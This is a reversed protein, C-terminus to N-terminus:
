TMEVTLRRGEDAAENSLAYPDGSETGFLRGLATVLSQATFPKKVLTLPEDNLGAEDLLTDTYGSMYVTRLGTRSALEKGSMGPMIVDTVLVDFAQEACLFIKLADVGNAAPTVLFGEGELIRTAARRVAPEDEALLIRLADPAAPPMPEAVPLEVQAKATLPLYITFITGQNPYSEVRTAGGSREVLAYVTSLGLGTGEGTPKTTFFPEFVRERTALDMGSGSDGVVLRLYGGPSLDLEQGKAADVAIEKATLRLRGGHPMAYRANVVLNMVIQEFEGSDFEIWVPLEPLEMCFEIDERLVRRLLKRFGELTERADIVGRSVVDRRAFTLLQRTLDAGRTAAKIVEEADARSQSERPLDDAIFRSYNLVVSLLNNFDHAIGGALRGVAEMKQAQRLEAELNLKEAEAKKRDTVDEVLAQLGTVRGDDGVLARAHTSVFVTSGDRAILEVEHRQVIGDAKLLSLFDDRRVSDAWIDAINDVESTFQEPSSYGLMLAMAPNIAVMEGSENAQYIGEVANDFISRYRVESELLAKDATQQKTIDRAFVAFSTTSGLHIRVVSLELKVRTGDARHATTLERRPLGENTSSGLYSAFLRRHAERLDPPILLEAMNQGVATCRPWGFTEEAAKNFETIDGSADITIVCDLASTLIEANLSRTQDLRDEAEIRATVDRFNIVMGQVSPHELLNTYTFDLWRWSGDRHRVRHVSSEVAGPEKLVADVSSRVRARDNPHVLSLEALRALEDGSYGLVREASASVYSLDGESREVVIGDSSNSILGEFYQAQVVSSKKEASVATVAERLARERVGAVAVQHGVIRFLRGARLVTLVFAVSMLVLLSFNDIDTVGLLDLALLAPGVMASVVLLRFRSGTAIAGQDQWETSLVRMAPHLGAAGVFGYAVLYGGELWSTIGPQATLFPGYYAADGLLIFAIGGLLWRAAVNKTGGGLCLRLVVALLVLDGLPYVTALVSSWGSLNGATIYPNVLILWYPTALGVSLILSDLLDGVRAKTLLFLGLALLPYGVVYFGDALSVAPVARHILLPYFSWIADGVMWCLIGAALVRWGAPRLPRHGRVGVLIMVAAGLGALVYISGGLWPGPDLAYIIGLVFGFALTARYLRALTPGSDSAVSPKSARKPSDEWTEM